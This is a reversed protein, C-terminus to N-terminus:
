KTKLLSINGHLNEISFWVGGGNLQRLVSYKKANSDGAARNAMTLKLDTTIKGKLSNLELTAKESEPLHIEINGHINTIASPDSASLSSFKVLIDGETNNLIAAGDLKELSLKGNFTKAEINGRINAVLIDATQSSIKVNSQINAANIKKAFYSDVIVECDFPIKLSIILQQDNASSRKIISVKNNGEYMDFLFDEKSFKGQGPSGFTVQINRGDYGTLMVESANYSKLYLSSKEGPNSLEITYDPDSQAKVIELQILVFFLLVCGKM